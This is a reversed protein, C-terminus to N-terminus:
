HAASTDVAKRPKPVLWVIAAAFLLLVTGVEFLHTTAIVVAQEEVLRELLGRQQDAGMGQMALNNAATSTTHILGSLNARSAQEQDAWMTTAISTGVAGALTRVFSSLGAASATEKPLVASLSLITIPVFFFPLGLGNLMHPIALTWYDAEATWNTRQFLAFALWIMGGSVLLRPDFKGTLKGVIPSMVVAFAGQWALVYGAWQATYGMFGQLWQPTVVVSSFFTGYCVALAVVAASFGRHRFVRVDVIPHADTLEWIVFAVFGIAAIVAEAVIAASGFWDADRGTDLMIQLAGVWVVLLVLGVVDVPQKETPTHIHRLFVWVGALCAIAVPINIFFIWHWSWNDSITGGLVPGAVPAVVTTMAWMGMATGRKDPPFIRVLLTQTLPILPGGCIGQGIRAAVLIGLNPSLGCLISFLAFGIMSAVFVRVAGFRLALWGTLPVCIAEAVSYSTVVWTGQEPSIALSGAIHPVSVNAISTDLVVMFNSLALVVGALWMSTGTLAKPQDEAM